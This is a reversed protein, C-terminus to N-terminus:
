NSAMGQIRVRWVRTTCTRRTRTAELHGNREASVFGVSGFELNARLSELSGQPCPPTHLGGLRVGAGGFPKQSGLLEQCMGSLAGMPAPFASNPAGLINEKARGGRQQLALILEWRGPCTATNHVPYNDTAGVM